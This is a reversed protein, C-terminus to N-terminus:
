APFYNVDIKKISEEDLLKKAPRILKRWEIDLKDGIDRLSVGNGSNQIADYIKGTLNEFESEHIEESDLSSMEDDSLEAEDVTVNKPDKTDSATKPEPINIEQVAIEAQIKVEPPGTEGGHSYQIDTSDESIDYATNKIWANHMRSRENNYGDLETKADNLLKHTYDKLESNSVSIDKLRESIDEMLAKSISIRNERISKREEAAEKKLQIKENKLNTRLIETEDKRNDSVGKIMERTEKEFNRINNRLDSLDEKLTKMMIKRNEKRESTFCEILNETRDRSEKVDGKLRKKVQTMEEKLAEGKEKRESNFCEILNETRDRSEKVDSKLRKKVQVMEEKLAEGKEKREASIGSIMLKTEKRRNEAEEKRIEAEEKRNIALERRYESELNIEGRLLAMDEFITM